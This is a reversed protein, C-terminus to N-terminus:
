LLFSNNNSWRRKCISEEKVYLMIVDPNMKKKIARRGRDKTIANEPRSNAIANVEIVPKQQILKNM